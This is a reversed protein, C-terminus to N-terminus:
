VRGTSLKLTQDTPPIDFSEAVDNGDCDRAKIDSEIFPAVITFAEDVALPADFETSDGFSFFTYFNTLTPSFGVECIEVGTDNVFALQTEERGVTFTQVPSIVEGRKLYAQYAGEQFAGEGPPVCTGIRGDVAQLPIRSVEVRNFEWVLDAALPGDVSWAACLALSTETTAIRLREEATLLVDIVAAIEVDTTVPIDLSGIEGALSNLELDTIEAAPVTTDAIPAVVLGDSLGVAEDTPSFTFNDTRTEDCDVGRGEHEVDAIEIEISDGDVLPEGSVLEFSQYFGATTPSV